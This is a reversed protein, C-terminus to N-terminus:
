PPRLTEATETRLTDPASRSQDDLRQLLGGSALGRLLGGSALGQLLGGSALRGSGNGVADAM